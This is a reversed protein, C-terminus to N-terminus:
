YLLFINYKGIEYNGNELLKNINSINLTYYEEFKYIKSKNKTNIRIQGFYVRNINKISIMKDYLNSYRKM